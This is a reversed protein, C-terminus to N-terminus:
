YIFVFVYLAHEEFRDVGGMTLVLCQPGVEHVPQGRAFRGPAEAVGDAAKPDHGAPEALIGASTEEDLRNAAGASSGGFGRQM